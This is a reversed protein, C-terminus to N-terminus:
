AGADTAGGRPVSRYRYAACLILGVLTTHYCHQFLLKPDSDGMESFHPGPLAGDKRWVNAVAHFAATFLSTEYHTLGVLNILLECTIDWDPKRWYHVLLPEAIEIARQREAAPMDTRPGCFDTLYVLTHTVSYVDHISFYTPNGGRRMVTARYLPGWNPRIGSLGAKWTLYQLEMERYPTNELAEPYGASHLARLAEEFAPLRVGISRLPLYALIYPNYQSPVRRAWHALTPEKGFFDCLFQGIPALEGKSEEAVWPLVHGYFLSLEAIEKLQDPNTSDAPRFSDLRDIIWALGRQWRVTVSAFLDAGPLHSVLQGEQV